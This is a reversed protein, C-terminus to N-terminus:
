TQIITIKIYVNVGCYKRYAGVKCTEIGKETIGTLYIYVHQMKQNVKLNEDGAAYIERTTEHVQVLHSVRKQNQIQHRNKLIADVSEHHGRITM